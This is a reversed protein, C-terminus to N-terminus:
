FGMMAHLVLNICNKTMLIRIFTPPPNLINHNGANASISLKISLKQNKLNEVRKIKEVKKKRKRRKGTRLEQLCQADIEKQHIDM